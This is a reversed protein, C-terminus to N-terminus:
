NVRGPAQRQPACEIHTFPRGTLKSPLTSYVVIRHSNWSEKGSYLTDEDFVVRQKGQWRKLIHRVIFEHLAQLDDPNRPILDLALEVQNIYFSVNSATIFTDLCRFFSESPQHVQLRFRPQNSWRREDVLKASGCARELLEMDKPAPATELRVQVTDIYAVSDLPVHPLRRRLLPTRPPSPRVSM